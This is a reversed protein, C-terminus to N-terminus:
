PATATVYCAELVFALVKPHWCTLMTAFGATTGTYPLKVNQLQLWGAFGGIKLYLTQVCRLPAGARLAARPQVTTSQLARLELNGGKGAGAACRAATRTMVPTSMFVAPLNHGVLCEDQSWATVLM